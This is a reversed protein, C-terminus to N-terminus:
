DKPRSKSVRVYDAVVVADVVLGYANVFHDVTDLHFLGGTGLRRRRRETAGDRIRRGDRPRPGGSPCIGM